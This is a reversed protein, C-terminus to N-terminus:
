WEILLLRWHYLMQFSSAILTVNGIVAFFVTIPDFVQLYCNCNMSKSWLKFSTKWNSWLDKQHFLAFLCQLMIKFLNWIQNRLPICIKKNPVEMHTKNKCVIMGRKEFDTLYDILKWYHAIIRTFYFRDFSM